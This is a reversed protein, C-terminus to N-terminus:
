AALALSEPELEFGSADHDFGTPAMGPGLDAPDDHPRQHSRSAAVAHRYRPAHYSASWVLTRDTVVLTSSRRFSGSKERRELTSRCNRAVLISSILTGSPVASM